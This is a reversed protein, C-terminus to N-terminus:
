LTVNILCVKTIIEKLVGEGLLGHIPFSHFPPIIKIEKKKKKKQVKIM